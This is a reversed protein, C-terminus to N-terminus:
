GLLIGIIESPIKVTPMKPEVRSRDVCDLAPVRSLIKALDDCDMELFIDIWEELSTPPPTRGVMVVCEQRGASQRRQRLQYAIDKALNAAGYVRLSTGAIFLLDAGDNLDHEALKSVEAGLAALGPHPDGYLIIGPRLYGPSNSRRTRTACQPCTVEFGLLFNKAIEPNIQETHSFKSCWVTELGGHMQFVDFRTPDSGSGEHVAWEEVGTYIRCGSLAELGDINQTFWHALRGEERLQNVLAHLESPQRVAQLVFEKLLVCFRYFATATGPSELVACRFLETGKKTLFNAPINKFLDDGMTTFTLHGDFDFRNTVGDHLSQLINRVSQKRM